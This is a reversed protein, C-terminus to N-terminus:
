NSFELNMEAMHRLGQKMDVTKHPMLLTAAMQSDM